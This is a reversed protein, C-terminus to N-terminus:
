CELPTCNVGVEECMCQLCPGSLESIIRGVRYMRGYINCGALKLQLGLDNKNPKSYIKAPLESQHRKLTELNLPNVVYSETNLDDALIGFKHSSSSSTSSFLSDLNNRIPEIPRAANIHLNAAIYPVSHVPFKLPKQPPPPATPTKTAATVAHTEFSGPGHGLLDLLINKIATGNGKDYSTTVGVLDVNLPDELDHQPRKTTMELQSFDINPNISKFPPIDADSFQEKSAQLKSKFNEEPTTTKDGEAKENFLMSFLDGFLGGDSEPNLNPISDKPLDDSQRIISPMDKMEPINRDTTISITNPDM